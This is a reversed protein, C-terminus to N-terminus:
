VPIKVTYTKGKLVTLKHSILWPNYYKLLRYTVKHEHAFDILSPISQTITVNKMDPHPIYHHQDELFYGFGQPDKMIEKMAMIRFIYRSTEENLQLDYYRSEKQDAKAKAYATPGMNYAAAVDTWNGFRKYLQKIYKAAAETSKDIDLREDVDETIELGMEEAATKMFQWYGKANASSTVNRLGSEAIALYKFDDPIVQRKLVAEVTPFHKKARKLNLIMTAQLYANINLERDLRERTDENVPVVEGAFVFHRDLSVSRVKQELDADSKTTGETNGMFFIALLSCALGASFSVVPIMRQKDMM